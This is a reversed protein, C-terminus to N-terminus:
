SEFDDGRSIVEFRGILNYVLQKYPDTSRSASRNWETTLNDLMVKSLKGNNNLYEILYNTFPEIAMSAKVLEEIDKNPAGSRLLYYLQVWIPYGNVIGEFEAPWVEGASRTTDSLYSRMFARVDNM